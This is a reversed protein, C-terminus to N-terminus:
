KLYLVNILDVKFFILLYFIMFFFWSFDVFRFFVLSIMKNGKFKKETYVYYMNVFFLIVRIIRRYYILREMNNFM